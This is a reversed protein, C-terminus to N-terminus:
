SSIRRSPMDKSGRWIPQDQRGVLTRQLWVFNIPRASWGVVADRLRGPTGTELPSSQLLVTQLRHEAELRALRATVKDVLVGIVSSAQAKAPTSQCAAKEPVVTKVHLDGPLQCLRGCHTGRGRLLM